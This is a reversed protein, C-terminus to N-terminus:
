PLYFLVPLNIVSSLLYYNLCSHQIHKSSFHHITCYITQSGRDPLPQKISAQNPPRRKYQIMQLRKLLQWPSVTLVGARLSTTASHTCGLTNAFRATKNMRHSLSRASSVNHSCDTIMLMMETNKKRRRRRKMLSGSSSYM